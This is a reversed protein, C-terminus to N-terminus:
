KLFRWLIPFAIIAAGLVLVNAWPGVVFAAFPEQLGLGISALATILMVVIGVAFSGMAVRLAKWTQSARNMSYNNSRPQSM